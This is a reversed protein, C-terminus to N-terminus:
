VAGVFRFTTIRTALGPSSPGTVCDLTAAPFRTAVGGLPVVGAPIPTETAGVTCSASGVVQIQFQIQVVVSQADPVDDGCCGAMAAAVQVHVHFQPQAGGGGCRGNGAMGGAAAGGTGPAIMGCIARGAVATPGRPAPGVAAGPGGTPVADGFPMATARFGNTRTNRPLTADAARAVWVAARADVAEACVILPNERSARGNIATIAGAEAPM